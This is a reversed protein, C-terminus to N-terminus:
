NDNCFGRRRARKIIFYALWMLVIVFLSDKVPLADIPPGPPGQLANAGMLASQNDTKFPQFEGYLEEQNGWSFDDRAGVGQCQENDGSYSLDVQTGSISFIKLDCVILIILILWVPKKAAIMKNLKM